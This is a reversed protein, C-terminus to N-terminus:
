WLSKSVRDCACGFYMTAHKYYAVCNTATENRKTMSVYNFIPISTLLCLTKKLSVTGFNGIPKMTQTAFFFFYKRVFDCFNEQKFSNMHLTNIPFSLLVTLIEIRFTSIKSSGELQMYQIIYVERCVPHKFISLVPVLCLFKM